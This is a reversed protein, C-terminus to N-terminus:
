GGAHHLLYADYSSAAILWIFNVILAIIGSEVENYLRARVLLQYLGALVPVALYGLWGYAHMWSAVVFMALLLGHVGLQTIISTLRAERADFAKSRVWELLEDGDTIFASESPNDFLWAKARLEVEARDDATAHVVGGSHISTSKGTTADLRYDIQGGTRFTYRAM